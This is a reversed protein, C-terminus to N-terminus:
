TEPARQQRFSTEPLIVPPLVLVWIPPTGPCRCQPLTPCNWSLSGGNSSAPLISLCALLVHHGNITHKHFGNLDHQQSRVPLKLPGLRVSQSISSQLSQSHTEPLPRGKGYKSIKAASDSRKQFCLMSQVRLMLIQLHGLPSLFLQVGFPYGQVGYNPVM